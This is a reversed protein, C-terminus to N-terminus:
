DGQFRCYGSLFIDQGTGGNNLIYNPYKEPNTFVHIETDFKEGIPDFRSIMSLDGILRNMLRGEEVELEGEILPTISLTRTTFEGNLIGSFNVRGGIIDSISLLNLNRISYSVSEDPQESFTGNIEVVENGSKLQLSEVAISKDSFYTMVPTGENRWEYNSGSFQFENLSFQVSNEFITAGTVSALTLDHDM